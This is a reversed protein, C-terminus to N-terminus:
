RMLAGTTTQPTPNTPKVTLVVRGFKMSSLETVVCVVGNCDVLTGPQISETSEHDNYTVINDGYHYDVDPLGVAEVRDTETRPEIIYLM